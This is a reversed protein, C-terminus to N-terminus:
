FLLTPLVRLAVIFLWPTLVIVTRLGTGIRTSGIVGYGIILLVLVWITTLSLAQALTYLAGAEMQPDLFIAPSLVNLQSLRMAAPPVTYMVATGAVTSVLMPTFAFTTVSWFRMFSPRSGLILFIVFFLGAVFVTLAVLTLSAGYMVGIVIPNGLAERTQDMQEQSMNGAQPSRLFDRMLAEGVDIRSTMLYVSAVGFVIFVLFPIWPGVRSDRIEGFAEGPSWLTKLMLRLARM